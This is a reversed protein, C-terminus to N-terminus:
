FTELSVSHQYGRRGFSGEEYLEIRREGGSLHLCHAGNVIFARGFDDESKLLLEPRLVADYSPLADCVSGNAVGVVGAVTKWSVVSDADEQGGVGPAVVRVEELSGTVLLQLLQGEPVQHVDVALVDAIEAGTHDHLLPLHIRIAQTRESQESRVLVDLIRCLEEPMFSVNVKCSFM